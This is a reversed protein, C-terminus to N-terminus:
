CSPCCIHLPLCWLCLGSIFNTKKMMGSGINDCM